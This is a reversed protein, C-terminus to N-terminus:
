GRSRSRAILIQTGSGPGFASGDYWGFRAVLEFGSLELLLLAEEPFIMRLDYSLKQTEEASEVYWHVSLIQTDARYSTSEYVARDAIEEHIRHLADSDRDLMAAVPNHLAIGLLGNTELM